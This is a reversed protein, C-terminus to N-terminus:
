TQGKVASAGLVRQVKGVMNHHEMLTELKHVYKAEAEPIMTNFRRAAARVIESPNCGILSLTLVDVVFTRRDGLAFGIRSPSHIETQVDNPFNNQFYSTLYPDFLFLGLM